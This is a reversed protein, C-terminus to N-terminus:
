VDAETKNLLEEGDFVISGSAQAGQPLLQMISLASLSKGSGSEGIVGLTQGASVHFDIDHLIPKGHISLRLNEVKLLTM